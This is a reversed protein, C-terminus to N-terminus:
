KKLAVVSTTVAMLQKDTASTNLVTCAYKGKQFTKGTVFKQSFVSPCAGKTCYNNASVFRLVLMTHKGNKIADAVKPSVQNPMALATGQYTIAKGPFGVSSGSSAMVKKLCLGDQKMDCHNKLAKANYGPTTGLEVYGAWASMGVTMGVVGLGLLVKKNISM